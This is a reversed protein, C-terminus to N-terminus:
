ATVGALERDIGQRAGRRLITGQDVVAPHEGAELPLRAEPSLDPPQQAELKPLLGEVVLFRAELRQQSRFSLHIFTRIVPPLPNIPEWRASRSSASPWSTRTM